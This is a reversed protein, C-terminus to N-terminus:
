SVNGSLRVDITRDGALDHQLRYRTSKISIKSSPMYHDDTTSCVIWGITPRESPVPYQVSARLSLPPTYHRSYGYSSAWLAILTMALPLIM